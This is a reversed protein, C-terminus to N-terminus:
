VHARGIKEIAISASVSTLPKFEQDFFQAIVEIFQVPAGQNVVEGFVVFHKDSDLYGFTKLLKVGTQAQAHVNYSSITALLIVISFLAAKYLM